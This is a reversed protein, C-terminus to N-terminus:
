ETDYIDDTYRFGLHTTLYVHICTLLIVIDHASCRFQRTSIDLKAARWGAHKGVLLAVKLAIQM